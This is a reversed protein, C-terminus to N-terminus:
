RYERFTLPNSRISRASLAEGANQSKRTEWWAQLQMPLIKLRWWPLGKDFAFPLHLATRDVTFQLDLPIQPAILAGRATTRDVASLRLYCDPLLPTQVWAIDYIDWPLDTIRANPYQENWWVILSDELGLRDQIQADQSPSRPAYLADWATPLPQSGDELPPPATTAVGPYWVELQKLLGLVGQLRDAPTSPDLLERRCQWYLAVAPDGAM